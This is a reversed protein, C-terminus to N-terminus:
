NGTLVKAINLYYCCCLDKYSIFKLANELNEPFSLIKLTNEFWLEYSIRISVWCVSFGKIFLSFLTCIFINLYITTRMM